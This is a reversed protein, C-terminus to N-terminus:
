QFFFMSLACTKRSTKQRKREGIEETSDEELEELEESLKRKRGGDTAKDLHVTNKKEKLAAAKERKKAAKEVIAPITVKFKLALPTVDAKSTEFTPFPHHFLSALM